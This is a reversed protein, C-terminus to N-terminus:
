QSQLAEGAHTATGKADVFKHLGPALVLTRSTAGSLCSGVAVEVPADAGLRLTELAGGSFAAGLDRIRGAASRLPGERFQVQVPEPGPVEIRVSDPRWELLRYPRSCLIRRNAPPPILYDRYQGPDGTLGAEAAKVINFAERATVFHLRFPHRNWSGVMAEFVGELGPGLLAKRSQLGHSYLKIFVWEPRGRVHINAKLWAPLRAPSPPAFYELAGDEVQGRSWDIVSPGQFLMLDGSPPRNVSVAVGTDYSKPRPDDKAYYIANTIRPQARSGLAPFTFDAYCGAERLALLETNCGSFADVRAGNDLAWNGAIYAFRHKPSPEGTVMAGAQSFWDLGERLKEAFTEHTDFGHHLHFEIEGYGLFAYRSLAQVCGFNKYEARHFWTYQPPRGDHDRHGDAIEKFRQCWTQVMNVAGEDGGHRPSPEFHDVMLVMIDIPSGGSRDRMRFPRHYLLHHPLWGGRLLGYRWLRWGLLPASAVARLGRALRSARAVALEAPM